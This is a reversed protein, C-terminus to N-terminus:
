WACVATLNCQADTDLCGNTAKVAKKPAIREELKIIRFRRPRPAPEDPPGETAQNKQPQRSEM